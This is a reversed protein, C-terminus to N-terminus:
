EFLSLQESVKKFEGDSEKIKILTRELTRHAVGIAQKYDSGFHNTEMYKLLPILSPLISKYNDEIWGELNAAKGELQKGGICCNIAFHAQDLDSILNRKRALSNWRESINKISAVKESETKGIQVWDNSVLEELSLGSGKLRKRAANFEISTGDRFLSFYIKTEPDSSDPIKEQEAAQLMSQAIYNAELLIERVSMLNGALNKKVKGYHSSYQELVEGRIIVELDALHLGSAKHQALLFSRSKASEIIKKRLTAWYIEQPETLRKRCVHVIDYEIKRSGFNNDGKSADSRIPFTSKICFGAKFLSDLVNIWAIDKDHHFTFVLTGGDKLIRYSEKWCLTLLRDYMLDSKKHGEENQGPYRAKNSVAELTKPSVSSSIENPFLNALPKKLWAWFFEALESYQLNDGFPPDTVVLDITKDKLVQRLDTSSMCFLSSGTKIADASLVKKSKGGQAAENIILDYPKEAFELGEIVNEICSSFNGRGLDSFIGNEVTTAKPHYNNNAFHPELKDGGLNWITFMCNHRLYNQWGGLVQSRIEANVSKQNGEAIYKLLLANVYLQRPNFFKYWHTYGHPPLQQRQHTEHGFPIEEKPVYEHIDSRSSYEKISKFILSIDPVDFFRGGYSFGAEKAEPDIGQILYPFVPALNGSIKIADITAQSRGCKGCNLKGNSGVEEGEFSAQKSGFNTHQLEPAVEGRVEILCLNESREKFWIEDQELSSGYFGGYYEKSKATIGKLWKRSLLLSHSISKTNKGKKETQKAIWEANLSSKCYPCQVENDNPKVSVFPKESKSLVFEASPAMRFDGFEVDFVDGCKSCVCNELFKVKASKEAVVASSIQPTLHFCDPDSCMIHKMWFTYVVEPGQWFYSKRELPGVELVKKETVLKGLKDKWKGDYGRPSKAVFFPKLQPEVEAKIYDYFNRVEKPSVPTVENKVVWWAIPSLDIGTVQFGLRNAEVVTTGGGMFIDAVKINSFKEHKQHNKRYMLAWSSQAARSEDKPSKTSAALLLQRFVSARRRAWWKSMMYIPKTANQEIGSIENVKLIPFDVELCTKPRNPDSFDVTEFSFKEAQEESITEVPHLESLDLGDFLPVKDQQFENKVM